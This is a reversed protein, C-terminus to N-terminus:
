WQLPNSWYHQGASSSSTGGKQGHTAGSGYNSKGYDSSTQGLSDYNTYSSGYGKNQFQTTSVTAGAATPV